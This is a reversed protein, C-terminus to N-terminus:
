IDEYLLHKYSNKIADEQEKNKCMDILSEFLGSVLYHSKGKEYYFDMIFDECLSFVYKMEKLNVLSFSIITHDEKNHDYKVFQEKFDGPISNVYVIIKALYDVIRAQFHTNNHRKEYMIRKLDSYVNALKHDFKPVKGNLNIYAKCFVEIYFIINQFLAPTLETLQGFDYSDVDYVSKKEIVEIAKNILLSLIYYQVACANVMSNDTTKEKAVLGYTSIWVFGRESESIHLNRNEDYYFYHQVFDEYNIGLSKILQVFLARVDFKFTHAFPDKSAIRCILYDLDEKTSIIKHENTNKTMM